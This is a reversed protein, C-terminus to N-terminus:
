LIRYNGLDEPEIATEFYTKMAQLLYYSDKVGGTEVCSHMALQPLGIDVTNLSVHTNSINGLTSGGLIDSRNLYVQTPVNAKACIAKFIGASVADSTYKQNGSFKIVIGGNMVPYNVRDAKEPHNPHIAHGNDASVMFSKAISIKLDERGRGLADNIRELVDALFTSDAGQKTGSGVEENDFIAAVPIAKSEESAIMGKVIAYACQLDDLKPSLIFENDAGFIRGEQRAYLYLDSSLISSAAIGCEEEILSKVTEESAASSMLPMLDVQPNLAVGNNADRNMHIALSPIVLLDRDVNVLKASVKDGEAVTVRGAISLPRDFWTSMIMGGYKEVNLQVYASGKVEPKEKLKFTPSDSHAAAVMFGYPIVEPIKFAIVSSGNRTVYYKSGARIEWPEYEKLESFGAEKLMDALNAVAHFCSPSNKIFNMMEISAKSYM